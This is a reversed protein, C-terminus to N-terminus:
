LISGRCMWVKYYVAPETELHKVAGEMDGPYSRLIFLYGGPNGAGASKDIYRAINDKYSKIVDEENAYISFSNFVGDINYSLTDSGHTYTVEDSGVALEYKEDYVFDPCNEAAYALTFDKLATYIDGINLTEELFAEESWRGYIKKGKETHYARVRFKYQSEDQIIEIWAETKGISEAVSEEITQSTRIFKGNERILKEIVGNPHQEKATKLLSDYTVFSTKNGEEDYSYNKWGTWSGNEKKNVQLQYGTAGKVENWLVAADQVTKGYVDMIKVKVPRAYASDVASYKTYYTKGNIVKFGRMKYYYTKGTIRNTNIYYTKEPNDTTYAKTFKGDKSTARYVIYGDIGPIEDWTTKIKTYNYSAASFDEPKIQKVKSASLGEAASAIFGAEGGPFMPGVISVALVLVLSVSLLRLIKRM